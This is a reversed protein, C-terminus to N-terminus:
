SANKTDHVKLDPKREEELELLIEEKGLLNNLEAQLMSVRNLEAVVENKRKRIEDLKTM